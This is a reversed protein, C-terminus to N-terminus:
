RGEARRDLPATERPTPGPFAGDGERAKERVSEGTVRRLFEGFPLAPAYLYGQYHTCGLQELLLRQERTEVYEGLVTFGLARALSVISTIIEGNRPNDLGRVLSGDLKVMDFENGQLYKISTHGMGFDDIVLPFGLARIRRGKEETEHDLLLANRETLELWIDGERLSEGEMLGRLFPEFDPEYFTSATINVCTKLRHGLGERLAPVNRAARRLVFRELDYLFGGEEALRIALSPPIPGLTRHRWRLLAEAGVCRDGSDYQPQYHLEPEGVELASRLDSLLMKAFLGTAGPLATLRVPVRTEDSRELAETLSRVHADANRLRERDHLAVFPRYVLVGLVLNLLQLASGALSGTALYGGILVPTTWQVERCPLPVLGLTMAGYSTLTALLPMLVFPLLLRVNYVVPLGFIMLENVNFLMPVLAIRSLTRSGRNRSFLLLALLLCLASGCGGMLVFVDLFTKSVIETPPRGQAALALNTALGPELLRRSVGELVNSGHIGLFWLLSSALVFALLTPLGRGLHAFLSTALSV